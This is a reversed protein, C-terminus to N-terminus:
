SPGGREEIVSPVVEHSALAPGAREYVPPLGMCAWVILDARM